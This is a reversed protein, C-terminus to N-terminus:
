GTHDELAVHTGAQTGLRVPGHRRVQLASHLLEQIDPPTRRENRPKAVGAKVAGGSGVGAPAGIAGPSVCQM